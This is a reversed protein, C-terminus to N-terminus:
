RASGAYPFLAVFTEPMPPRVKEASFGDRVVRCVAIRDDKSTLRLVKCVEMALKYGDFFKRSHTVMLNLNGRRAAGWEGLSTDYESCLEWGHERMGTLYQLADVGDALMVAYDVDSAEPLYLASGILASDAVHPLTQILAAGAAIEEKLNM